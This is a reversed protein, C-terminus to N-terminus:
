QVTKRKFGATVVQHKVAKVAPVHTHEPMLRQPIDTQVFTTDPCTLRPWNCKTIATATHVQLTLM